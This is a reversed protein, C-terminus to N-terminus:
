RRVTASKGSAPAVSKQCRCTRRKQQRCVGQGSQVPTIKGLPISGQMQLPQEPIWAVRIDLAELAIRKETRDFAHLRQRVQTCYDILSEVRGLAQGIANLEVQLSTQQAHLPERRAAIQERHRKLELLNIVDGAYAEAWRQEERDCKALAAEIGSLAEMLAERREDAGTQQRAVETIILDPEQLIREVAAWVREEATAAPITGRCWLNPDMLSHRSNCRYYRVGKM